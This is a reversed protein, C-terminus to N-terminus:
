KIDHAQLIKLVRIAIFGNLAGTILSLALLVPMYIIILANSLLTMGAIMQGVVHLVAGSLSTTIIHFNFKKVLVMAAFALIGGTLSMYFTVSLFRGTLISVLLIRLLLVIFSEKMGFKYLVLLTVINALGLKAGPVFSPIFSEIMGLVIGCALLISLFVYKRM